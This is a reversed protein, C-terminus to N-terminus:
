TDLIRYSRKCLSFVEITSKTVFTRTDGGFFSFTFPKYGLTKHNKSQKM